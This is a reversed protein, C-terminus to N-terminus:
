GKAEKVEYGAAAIVMRLRELSLGNGKVTARCKALDVSADKVGQVTKLATQVSRACHSCTMGGISLELVEEGQAGMTVAEKKSARALHPKLTAWGLMALLVVASVNNLWLKWQAEHHHTVVERIEPTFVDLLAGFGLACGGVAALYIFATRRGMTRWVTAVTAANTAPGTMLFVLAAGPSVGALILSQAIPVSATACVYLPIGIAMMVLMPLLGKGLYQTLFGQPVLAAILGAVILGIFLAKGIDAPLTVFAHRLVGVIRGNRAESGCCDGECVIPAGNEEQDPNRVFENVMVGGVLGSVLAAFPRIVAFIPGLLSWTVLISDVGTQPTSILFATTAGRGAGHKRLSAAVPIVGCSCLPLPVGYASAKVVSWLKRGGLHREVMEAPVLVSLVGAVLFGFLLYPAMAGLTSWFEAAFRSVLEITM